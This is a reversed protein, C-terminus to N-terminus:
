NIIIKITIIELHVSNSRITQYHRLDVEIFFYTQLPNYILTMIKVRGRILITTTFHFLTINAFCTVRM